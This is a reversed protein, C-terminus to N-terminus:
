FSYNQNGVELIHASTLFYFGIVYRLMTRRRIIVLATPRRRASRIAKSTSSSRSTGYLSKATPVSIARRFPGPASSITTRKRRRYGLQIKKKRSFIFSFINVSARSYAIYHGSAISAGLHMIVCSLKYRHPTKKMRDIKSCSECFCRIELPTPVYSNVKQVGSMSTTFRKLHLVM